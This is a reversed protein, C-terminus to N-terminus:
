IVLNVRLASATNTINEILIFDPLTKPSITYKAMNSIGLGKKM